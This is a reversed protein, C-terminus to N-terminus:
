IIIMHSLLPKIQKQQRWKSRAADINCMGYACYVKFAM